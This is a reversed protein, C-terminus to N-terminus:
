REKEIIMSDDNVIEIIKEGHYKIKVEPLIGKLDEVTKPMTDVINKLEEDTFIYYAPINKEKSKDKRFTKLNEEISTNNNNNNNHKLYKNTIDTNNTVRRELWTEAIKKLTNESSLYMKDTMDIGKQIYNILQDARLIHSKIEKPAYRINLLSKPNSLVVLPIFSDKGVKDAFLFNDLKNHHSSWVKKLIDKHRLAQTYPSYIGEKIRKGNYEYERYFQGNNDVTINGILNKCEIIYSYGRSFILYDIQAKNGDIEYTVDRLVYMGLHANKLEFAIDNEGKIGYELLKIDKDIEDKNNVNNRINKLEELQRELDSDSKLFVTDRFKKFLEM